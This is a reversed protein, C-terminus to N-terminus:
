YWIHSNKAPVMWYLKNWTENRPTLYFFHQHSVSLSWSNRPPYPNSSSSTRDSWSRYKLWNYDFALYCRKFWRLFLAFCQQAAITRHHPRHQDVIQCEARRTKDEQCYLVWHWQRSMTSEWTLPRARLIRWLLTIMSFKQLLLEARILGALFSPCWCVWGATSFNLPHCFPNIIM